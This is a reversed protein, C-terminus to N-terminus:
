VGMTLQRLNNASRRIGDLSDTFAGNEDVIFWEAEQTKALETIRLLNIVGSGIEARQYTATDRIDSIHLLPCRGPYRELLHIAGAAFSRAAWYTDVALRVRSDEPGLLTDLWWGGQPNPRLEDALHHYCFQIGYEAAREALEGLNHALAPFDCPGEKRTAVLYRVGASAICELHESLSGSLGDVDTYCSVPRLGSQSLAARVRSATLGQLGTLEVGEYGASAIADLAAELGQAEYLSRVAGFHLALPIPM